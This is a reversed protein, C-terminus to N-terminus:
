KGRIYLADVHCGLRSGTPTHIETLIAQTMLGSSASDTATANLIEERSATAGLAALMCGIEAMGLATCKTCKYTTIQTYIYWM